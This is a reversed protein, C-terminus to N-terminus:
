KIPLKNLFGKQPSASANWSWRNDIPSEVSDPDALGTGEKNLQLNLGILNGWRDYELSFQSPDKDEANLPAPREKIFEMEEYDNSYASPGYSLLPLRSSIPGRPTASKASGQRNKSKRKKLKPDTKEIITNCVLEFEYYGSPKVKKRFECDVRSKVLPALDDPLPDPIQNQQRCNSQYITKIGAGGSANEVFTLIDRYESNQILSKGKTREMEGILVYTLDDVNTPPLDVGNGYLVYKIWETLRYSNRVFAKKIHQVGRRYIESRQQLYANVAADVAACGTAGVRATILRSIPVVVSDNWYKACSALIKEVPDDDISGTVHVPQVKKIRLRTGTAALKYGPTNHGELIENRYPPNKVMKIESQKQKEQLEKRVNGLLEKLNLVGKGYSKLKLVPTIDDVNTQTEEPLSEMFPILGFPDNKMPYNLPPLDEFTITYGLSSLQAEKDPDYTEKLAAKLFSIAGSSNGQSLSIDALATNAMSHNPYLRTAEELNEKAKNLEGLGLWAQGINNLITSNKPFLDNLYQLIPLAAQEAGTMTLFAAYNNLNDINDMDDLCARGMIYIAKESHGIMWLSSSANGTIDASNYKNKTENYITLAEKKEEAPIMREVQGHVQKIFLALEEKTFIKDPLMNIRAVDKKPVLSEEEGAQQFTKESIGSLSKGLGGMMEAQQKLMAIQDQLSKITEEDEKNRIAEALQNELDAIQTNIENIASAMEAQMQRKSAQGEKVEKQPLKRPSEVQATLNQILLCAFLLIFIIRM